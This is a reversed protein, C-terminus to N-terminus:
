MLFLLLFFNEGVNVTFALGSFVVIDCRHQNLCDLAQPLPYQRCRGEWMSMRMTMM